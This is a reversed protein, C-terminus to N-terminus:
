RKKKKGFIKSVFSSVKKKFSSTKKKQNQKIRENINNKKTTKKPAPKSTKKPTSKKPAPKSAYKKNINNVMDVAKNNVNTKKRVLPDNVKKTAKAKREANYANKQQYKATNMEKNALNRAIFDQRLPKTFKVGENGVKYTGNTDGAYAKTYMHQLATDRTDILKNVTRKDAGRSEAYKITPDVMERYLDARIQSERLNSGVVANFVDTSNNKFDSFYQANQDSDGFNVDFSFPSYGGGNYGGWDEWNSSWGRGYNKWGRGRSYGGYSSWGSSSFGSSRGKERDLANEKTQWAKNAEDMLKQFDRDKQAQAEQWAREEATMQKDYNWDMLQKNYQAGLQGLSKNYENTANMNGFELQTKMDALKKNLETLMENRQKSAEALNKNHNINAVQELGLQQPSYQIGRNTGSVNLEEMQNYRNQNLTDTTEGFKKDTDTVSQQYSEEAKRRQEELEQQKLKWDNQMQEKQQQYLEWAVEEPKKGSMDSIARVEPMQAMARVQPADVATPAPASYATPQVDNVPAPNITRPTPVPAPYQQVVKDPVALNPQVPAPKQVNANPNTYQNTTTSSTNQSGVNELGGLNGVIRKKFGVGPDTNELPTDVTPSPVNAQTIRKIYNNYANQAM